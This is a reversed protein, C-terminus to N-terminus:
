RSRRCPTPGRRWRTAKGAVGAEFRSLYVARRDNVGRLVAEVPYMGVADGLRDLLTRGMQQVDTPEHVAIIADPPLYNLFTTTDGIAPRDDRSATARLGPESPANTPPPLAIRVHPMAESSRQTLPDFRRISEIEDGFFEIRIPDVAASVYIDLIDGCRSTARGSWRM